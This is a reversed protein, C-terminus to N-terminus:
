HIVRVLREDRHVQLAVFVRGDDAGQVRHDKAVHDLDDGPVVVLPAVGAAHGIQDGKDTLAETGAVPQLCRGGPGSGFARLYFLARGMSLSVTRSKSGARLRTSTRTSKLTGMSSPRTLSSERMRAASGVM